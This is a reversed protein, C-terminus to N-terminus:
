MLLEWASHLPFSLAFPSRWGKQGPKWGRVCIFALSLNCNHRESIDIKIKNLLLTYGMDMFRCFNWPFFIVSSGFSAPLLVVLPFSAQQQNGTQKPFHSIPLVTQSIFVTVSLLIHPKSNKKGRIWFSGLCFNALLESHPLLLQTKHVLPNM